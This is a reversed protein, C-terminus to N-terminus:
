VKQIVTSVTSTSQRPEFGMEVILGVTHGQARLRVERHKMEGIRLITLTNDVGLTPLTFLNM